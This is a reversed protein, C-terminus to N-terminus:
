NVLLVYSMTPRAKALARASRPATAVPTRVDCVYRPTSPLQSVSRRFLRIEDDKM